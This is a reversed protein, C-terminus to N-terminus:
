FILNKRGEREAIERGAKVMGPMECVVWSLGEPYEIYRNYAYYSVGVNGGFDVGRGGPRLAQRMWLMAPYDHSEIRQMRDLHHSPYDEHVFGVHKTQPAARRAEAFSGYVGYFCGYCDGAFAKRYRLQQAREVLPLRKIVGKIRAISNVPNESGTVM